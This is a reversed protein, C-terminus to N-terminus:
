VEGGVEEDAESAYALEGAEATEEAESVAEAEGAEAEEVLAEPEPAAEESAEAAEAAAAAAQAERARQAAIARPDRKVILHRIVEEAVKLNRDIELVTQPTLSLDLFFYLGDRHRDIPYALRRRGWPHVKVVQGGNTQVVQTVRDLIGKTQEESAEPSVVIGLEYDRM